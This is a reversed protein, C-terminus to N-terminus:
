EDSMVMVSNGRKGLFYFGLGPAEHLHYQQQDFMHSRQGNSQCLTADRATPNFL